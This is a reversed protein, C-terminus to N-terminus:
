HNIDETAIYKKLKKDVEESTWHLLFITATTLIDVATKLDPKYLQYRVKNRLNRILKLKEIMPIEVNKSLLIDILEGREMKSHVKNPLLKIKLSQLIREISDDAWEIAVATERLNLKNWAELLIKAAENAQNIIEYRYGLKKFLKILMRTDELALIDEEYEKYDPHKVKIRHRGKSIRLLLTGNIDTIGYNVNDLYIVAENIPTNTSADRLEITINVNVQKDNENRVSKKVHNRLSRNYEVSLKSYIVENIREFLSFVRKDVIKIRKLLLASWIMLALLIFSIFLIVTMIINSRDNISSFDFKHLITLNNGILMLDEIKDGISIVKDLLKPSVLNCPLKVIYYTKECRNGALDEAVITIKNVGEKLRISYSTLNTVDITGYYYIYIKWLRTDDHADWTVIMTSSNTYVYCQNQLIFSNFKVNLTPIDTDLLYDKSIPIWIRINDILVNLDYSNVGYYEIHLYIYIVSGSGAIDINNLNSLGRIDLNIKTWNCYINKRKDISVKYKLLDATCNVNDKIINVRLYIHIYGYLAISLNGAKLLMDFSLYIPINSGLSPLSVNNYVGIDVLGSKYGKRHFVNFSIELSPPNTGIDAVVMNETYNIEGKVRLYKKWGNLGSNFTTEHIITISTSNVGEFRIYINILIIAILIVIIKRKIKM